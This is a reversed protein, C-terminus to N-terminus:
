SYSSWSSTNGLDFDDKKKRSFLCVFSMKNSIHLTEDSPSVEQLKNILWLVWIIECVEMM